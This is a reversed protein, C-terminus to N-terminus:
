WWVPVECLGVVALGGLRRLDEASEALGFAWLRRLPLDLAARSETRVLHCLRSRVGTGFARDRDSSRSLM